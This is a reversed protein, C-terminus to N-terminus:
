GRRAPDIRRPRRVCLAQRVADRGVPREVCVDAPHPGPRQTMWELRGSGVPPSRIARQDYRAVLRTVEASCGSPGSEWERGPARRAYDYLVLDSAGDTM